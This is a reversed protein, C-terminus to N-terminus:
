PLEPVIAASMKDRSYDLINFFLNNFLNSQQIDVAAQSVIQFFLKSVQRRKETDFSLKVRMQNGEAVHM